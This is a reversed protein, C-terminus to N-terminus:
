ISSRDFARDYYAIDAEGNAGFTLAAVDFRLERTGPRNERIWRMAADVIRRRKPRTVSNAPSGYRGAKSRSRVEVVALLPGRRAVIDLEFRGLRANRALLQFGQRELYAAVADEAAQGVRRREDGSPGVPDAM